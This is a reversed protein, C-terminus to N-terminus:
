PFDPRRKGGKRRRYSFIYIGAAAMLLLGGSIYLIHTGIGGTSPLVMDSIKTNPVTITILGSADAAYEEATASVSDPHQMSVTGDERVTIVIHDSPPRYENPPGTEVLYYTGPWVNGIYAYGKPRTQEADTFGGTTITGIANGQYDTAPTQHDADAYLEFTVGNLRSNDKADVKILQIETPDRDIQNKYLVDHEENSHMTGTIIRNDGPTPPNQVTGGNANAATGSVSTFTYGGGPAAEQFRYQDGNPVNSIEIYEGAKLNFTISNNGNGYTNSFNGTRVVEGDKNRITYPLNRGSYRPNYNTGGSRYRIYGTFTFEQDPFLETQGDSKTVTKKVIISGPRVLRNHFELLSLTNGYIEGSIHNDSDTVPYKSTDPSNTFRYEGTVPDLLNEQAVGVASDLVYNVPMENGDAEWFSFTAGKPIIPFRLEEGAKITFTMDSTDPVHGKYVIRQGSANYFHYPIPDNQHEYFLPTDETAKKSRDTRDDLSMDFTYPNGDPDLIWGRITFEEDSEIRDGNADVVYKKLNIGGKVVNVASLDNSEDLDGNLTKVIYVQRTEVLSPDYDAPAESQDSHGQMLPNIYEGELEYHYDMDLERVYYDYGAERTAGGADVLGPSVYFPETKWGNSDNLVVLNNNDGYPLFLNVPELPATPDDKPRRFVLLRVETPRDEGVGSNDVSGFSDEFQKQISLPMTQMVLPDVQDTCPTHIVESLTTIGDGDERSLYYSMGVDTNTKLTYIEYGDQTVVEFQSAQEETLDALTIEHNNLQTVLDIAEQNPWVKFSVTYTTKDDLQFQNGMNWELAGTTSNYTALGCDESTPDWNEVRSIENGEDDHIIKAYTLESTDVGVIGGSKAVLNTMSTIGDSLSVDTWGIHGAISEKINTFADELDDEDEALFSHGDGIGADQMLRDVKTVDKSIGVCYIKKGQADISKVEELATKYDYLLDDANGQGFMHVSRMFDYSLWNYTEDKLQNDTEVTNGPPTRSIRMTPDGDTVFIIYTDREPDVQLRNAIQLAQEWNTAGEAECSDVLANFKSADTTFHYDPYNQWYGGNEGPISDDSEKLLVEKATTGFTVLSMRVQPNDDKNQYEPGLLENALNKIANQAITLRREADVDTSNGSMDEKMSGSTDLVVIVDALKEVELPNAHGDVSLTITRTGDHNNDSTKHMEPADPNQADAYIKATGGQTPAPIPEYVMYINDNAPLNQWEPWTEWTLNTSYQWRGSDSDFHVYPAIATGTPSSRHASAYQYGPVDYILFAHDSGSGYTNNGAYYPNAPTGAPFEVFTNGNMYGYHVNATLTNYGFWSRERWQLAYTSFSGTEFNATLTDGILLVASNMTEVVPEAGSENLHQVVLSGDNNNFNEPLSKRKVSVQVPAAPEVVSGDEAYISLDFIDMFVTVPAESAEAEAEPPVPAPLGDETFAAVSPLAAAASRMSVAAPEAQAENETPLANDFVQRSAEYADSGEDFETIVLRANDPIQAAYDYTVTVEYLNGDDSLYESTLESKEVVAYTANADASFEVQKYTFEPADVVSATEGTVQVLARDADEKMSDSTMKVTFADQPDVTEGNENEFAIDVAEYRDIKGQVAAELLTQLANDDSDEMKLSLSTNEPFVGADAEVSVTIGEVSEELSAAPLEVTDVSGVDIGPEKEATDTDITIAPLILAYTTVFVIIAAL